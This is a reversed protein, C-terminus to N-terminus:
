SRNIAKYVQEDRQAVGDLIQNIERIRQILQDDTKDTGRIDYELKKIEKQILEYTARDLRELFDSVKQGLGSIANLMNYPRSKDPFAAGVVGLGAAVIAITMKYATKRYEHALKTYLRDLRMIEDHHLKREERDIDRMADVIAWRLNNLNDHSLWNEYEKERDADYVDLHLPEDQWAVYYLNSDEFHTQDRKLDIPSDINLFDEENMLRDITM